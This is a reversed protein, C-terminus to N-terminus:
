GDEPEGTDPLLALYKAREAEVQAQEWAELEAPDEDAALKFTVAESGLPQRHDFGGLLIEDPIGDPFARCHAIRRDNGPDLPAVFYECM